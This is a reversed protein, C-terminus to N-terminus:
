ASSGAAVLRKSAAAPRDDALLRGGEFQLVRDAAAVWAPHHTVVILTRGRALEHLAAIMDSATEDDVHAGPEDLLLVPAERIVARAVAVRQRQGTSLALGREGVPTALGHPASSLMESLGARDAARRVAEDNAEPMGLRINDAISANFLHATQPVWALQRRVAALDDSTLGSLDRDGVRVAGGTSQTFGLLLSLLTSKGAGSPGVVALHEGPAITITVDTLAASARGAYRVSVNDFHIADLELDIPQTKPAAVTDPAENTPTDLIELAEGAAAVGEAAAHFQTGVARLPLYAEPTLLLVLLAAEYGLHGALLRLGVEVAILATSLTAILELVLASLFAIRLTAMTAQRHQQTVRRIAEAQAKARGFTKLTPLGEVVDLFHGGLRSLLRWQRMTRAQTHWGILAMFIPILPLTVAITVASVLDTGAIRALVAVPVLASLVLQPLYRSFYPDLADLGRGVLTVLEGHSRNGLWAPGLGVFKRMLKRRLASKTAAAARLAMVESVYGFAGRALLVVALALVSGRIARFGDGAHVIVHALLGAQVLVLGTTALACAVTALLPGRAAGAHRLLRPDVPRM